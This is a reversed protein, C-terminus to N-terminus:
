VIHKWNKNSARYLTNWKVGFHDGLERWTAGAAHMTRAQRVIDETLVAAWHGEGKSKEAASKRDHDTRCRVVCKALEAERRESSWSWIRHAIKQEPDVHDVQLDDWAGCDICPGNEAFWEARRAAVWEAQYKRRDAPNLYPM